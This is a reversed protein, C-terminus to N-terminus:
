WTLSAVYADRGRDGGEKDEILTKELSNVRQKLHGFYQLQLKLSLVELSYESNSEKLIWHKSRRASESFRSLSRWCWLQFADIRQRETKEISWCECSYTVVSFTSLNISHTMFSAPILPRWLLAIWDPAMSLAQDSLKEHLLTKNFYLLSLSAGSM